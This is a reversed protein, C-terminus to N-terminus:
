GGPPAWDRWDSTLFNAAAMGIRELRKSIMVLTERISHKQSGSCDAAFPTEPENRRVGV